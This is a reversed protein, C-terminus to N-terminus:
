KRLLAARIDGIAVLKRGGLWGLLVCCKLWVMWKLSVNAADDRDRGENSMM